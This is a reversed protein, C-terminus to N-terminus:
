DLGYDRLFPQMDVYKKGNAYFTLGINNPGLRLNFNMFYKVPHESTFHVLGKELIIQGGDICPGNPPDMVVTLEQGRMEINCADTETRKVTHIGFESAYVSLSGDVVAFSRCEVGCPATLATTGGYFRVSGDAVIATEQANLDLIGGCLDMFGKREETSDSRLANKGADVTIVGDAVAIFDYAYIGDRGAHIELSGGTIAAGKASSIADHSADISLSGLGCLCLTIESRIAAAENEGSYELTNRSDQATMLYVESATCFEMCPKEANKMSLGDLLFRIEAEPPAVVRLQAETYSGSLRYVGAEAVTTTEGDKLTLEKVSAPDVNQILENELLIIRYPGSDDLFTEPLTAVIPEFEAESPAQSREPAASSSEAASPASAQSSVPEPATSGPAEGCGSLSAIMVAAFLIALAKKM